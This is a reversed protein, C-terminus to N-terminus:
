GNSKIKEIEKLIEQKEAHSCTDYGFEGYLKEALSDMLKNIEM